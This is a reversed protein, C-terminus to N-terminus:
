TYKAMAAMSVNFHLGKLDSMAEIRQKWVPNEQNQILFLVIPMVAIAALHSECLSTLTIHATQKVTIDPENGVITGMWPEAPNVPIMVNTVCIDLGDVMSLQCCYIPVEGSYGLSHTHRVVSVSVRLLTPGHFV